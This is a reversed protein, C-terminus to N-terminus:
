SETLRWEMKKKGKLSDMGLNEIGEGHEGKGGTGKQERWKSGEKYGWRIEM